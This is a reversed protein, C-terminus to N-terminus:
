LSEEEVLRKGWRKWFHQPPVIRITKYHGLGLLHDDGSIIWRVRAAVACAVIKDDDPDQPIVPVIKPEQIVEVISFLSLGSIYINVDPVVRVKVM